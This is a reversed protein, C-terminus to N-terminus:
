AQRVQWLGEARAKLAANMEVFARYITRSMGKGLRPGMLGGVIEGNALITSAEALAEIEFYRVTKM